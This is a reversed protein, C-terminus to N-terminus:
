AQAWPFGPYRECLYVYPSVKRGPAHCGLRMYEVLSMLDKDGYRQVDEYRLCFSCADALLTGNLDVDLCRMSLGDDNYLPVYRPYLQQWESEPLLGQSGCSLLFEHVRAFWALDDRPRQWSPPIRLTHSQLRGTWEAKGLMTLFRVFQAPEPQKRELVTELERSLNWFFFLCNDPDFRSPQESVLCQYSRCADTFLM